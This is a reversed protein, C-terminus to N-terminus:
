RTIEILFADGIEKVHFPVECIDDGLYKNTLYNTLIQTIRGGILSGFHSTQKFTCPGDDVASDEFLYEEYEEERGKQVAFVEYLEARMRGDFLIERSEEKKWREFVQKRAKMNDVGSIMIPSYENNYMSKFATINFCGFMEMQQKVAFAKNNGINQSSLFQTGLNYPEVNDADILFFKAPISKAVNYMTASGIGGAGIVCITENKAGEYWPADKFRNNFQQNQM